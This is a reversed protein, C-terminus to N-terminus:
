TSGDYDLLSVVLLLQDLLGSFPAGGGNTQLCTAYQVCGVQICGNSMQANACGVPNRMSDPPDEERERMRGLNPNPEREAPNKGQTNHTGPRSSSSPSAIIIIISLLMLVMYLLFHGCTRCKINSSNNRTSISVAEPKQNVAELPLGHSILTKISEINEQKSHRATGAATTTAAAPQNWSGQFPDDPQTRQRDASTHQM